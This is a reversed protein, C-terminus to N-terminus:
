SLTRKSPHYACPRLLFNTHFQGLEDLRAIDTEISEGDPEEAPGCNDIEVPDDSVGEAPERDMEIPGDRRKFPGLTSLISRAVAATVGSSDLFHTLMYGLLRIPVLTEERKTEDSFIRPNHSVYEQARICLNYASAIESSAHQVDPSLPRAKQSFYSMAYSPTLSTECPEFCYVISLM